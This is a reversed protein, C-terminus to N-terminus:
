TKTPCKFGDMYKSYMEQMVCQLENEKSAPVIFSDHVCLCPVGQKTFYTLIDTAIKSDLNQLEIGKDSCIYQRIDPHADFIKNFLKRGNLNNEKMAYSISQLKEGKATCADIERFKSNFSYIAQRESKANIAINMLLKVATRLPDNAPFLDYPDHSIDKGLLHYLMRIHLSSYDVEIVPEGNILMRARKNKNISQYDGDYYRGGYKFNGRNFVRYLRSDLKQYYLLNCSQTHTVEGWIDVEGLGSRVQGSGGNTSPIGGCDTSFSGGESHLSGGFTPLQGEDLPLLVDVGSIFENYQNVVNTIDRIERTLHYNIWNKSSDKLIIPSHPKVPLANKVNCVTVVRNYTKPYTVYDLHVVGASNNKLEDFERSLNEIVWIRARKGEGSERDYYGPVGSVYDLEILRDIISLYNKYTHWEFGYRRHIQSYYGTDRSYALVQNSNFAAFLNILINLIAILRRQRKIIANDHFVLPYIRGALDNFFESVYAKKSPLLRGNLLRSNDLFNSDDEASITLMNNEEPYM